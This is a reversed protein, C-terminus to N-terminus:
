SASDGNRSRPPPPDRLPELPHFPPFNMWDEGAKQFQISNLQASKGTLLFGVFIDTATKEFEARGEVCVIVDPGGCRQIWEFQFTRWSGFRDAVQQCFSDWEKAERVRFRESAGTYISQCADASLTERIRDVANLALARQSDEVKMGDFPDESARHHRHCAPMILCAAVIARRLVM